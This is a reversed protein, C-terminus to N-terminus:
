GDSHAFRAHRQLAVWPNQRPQPQNLSDQQGLLILAQEAKVLCASLWATMSEM